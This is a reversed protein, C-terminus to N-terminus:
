RDSYSKLFSKGVSYKELYASCRTGGEGRLVDEAEFVCDEVLGGFGLLFLEGVAVFSCIGFSIQPLPRFDFKVAIVGNPISDGFIFDLGCAHLLKYATQILFQLLTGRLCDHGDTGRKLAVPLHWCFDEIFHSQDLVLLVRGLHLPLPFLSFCLVLEHM